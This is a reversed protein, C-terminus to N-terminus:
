MFKEKRELTYGLESTKATHQINGSCTVSNITNFLQFLYNSLFFFYVFNFLLKSPCLDKLHKTNAIPDTKAKNKQFIITNKLNGLKVLLHVALAQPFILWPSKFNCLTSHFALSLTKTYWFDKDKWIYFYIDSATFHGM